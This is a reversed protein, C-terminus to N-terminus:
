GKGSNVATQRERKGRVEKESEREREIERDVM